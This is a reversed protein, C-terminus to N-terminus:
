HNRIYETPTCGMIIRFNKAFYASDSFGVGRSIEKIDAPMNILLDAAMKIRLNRIFASVSLGTNAKIKRHMQSRSMGMLACFQQTNFEPNTLNSNLVQQVKDAFRDDKSLFSFSVNRQIVM